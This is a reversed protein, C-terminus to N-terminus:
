DINLWEIQGKSLWYNFTDLFFSPIEKFDVAEEIHITSKSHTWYM